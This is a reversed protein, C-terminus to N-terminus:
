VGAIPVGLTSLTLTSLYSGGVNALAQMFPKLIRIAAATAPNKKVAVCLM